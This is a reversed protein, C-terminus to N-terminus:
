FGTLQRGIFFRRRTLLAVTVERLAFGALHVHRCNENQSTFVGRGGKLPAPPHLILIAACM